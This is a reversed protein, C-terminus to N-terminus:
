RWYLDDMSYSVLLLIGSSCYTVLILKRRGIKDFLPGIIITSAFSVVSLPLMYLSIEGQELHFTNALISPYQYYILNFFLAQTFILSFSVIFKKTHKFLGEKLLQVIEKCLIWVTKNKQKMPIEEAEEEPKLLLIKEESVTLVIANVISSAKKTYGKLLLWRPSEPVNRRMVVM